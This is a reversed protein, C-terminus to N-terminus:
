TAASGRGTERGNGLLIPKVLSRAQISRALPRGAERRGGVTITNILMKVNLKSVNDMVREAGLGAV